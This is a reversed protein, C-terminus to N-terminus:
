FLTFYVQTLHTPQSIPFVQHLDTWRPVTVTRYPVKWNLGPYHLTTCDPSTSTLRLCDPGTFHLATWKLRRCHQGAWDLGSWEWRRATWDMWHFRRGDLGTGDWGIGIWERGASNMEIWCLGPRYLDVATSDLGTLHLASCHLGYCSLGTGDRGKWDLVVLQRQSWCLATRSLWTLFLWTRQPGDM